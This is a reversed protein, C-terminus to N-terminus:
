EICNCCRPKYCLLYAYMPTQSTCRICSTAAAPTFRLQCLIGLLPFTKVLETKSFREHSASVIPLTAAALLL